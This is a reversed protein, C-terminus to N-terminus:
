SREQSSIDSVQSLGADLYDQLIIAAAAADLRAKRRRWDRIRLALRREAERSTLREDQVCVPLSTRQRLSEVFELVYQTEVHPKGDLTSPLGVVISGLGDEEEQLVSIEQVVAAVGQAVAGPVDLVRLPRALTASADSVALGIRRKGVDVGLVRV